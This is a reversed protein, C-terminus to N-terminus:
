LHFPLNVVDRTPLPAFGPQGRWSSFHIASSINVEKKGKGIEGERKEKGKKRRGNM